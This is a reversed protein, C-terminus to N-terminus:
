YPYLCSKEGLGYGPEVYYIEKVPICAARRDWDMDLNQM